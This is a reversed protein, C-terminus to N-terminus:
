ASRSQALRQGYQKQYYERYEGSKIPEWWARNECYWAVTERHRGRPRTEPRWGLARLKTTDVAYRHDHGPRLGPRPADADPDAGTLELIRARARPEHSTARASTTSRAAAGEGCSCSSRARLPGRRVALRAGAAATTSRCRSATSRTPSSCRSSRRRISTRGTTTPAARSRCTWARVHPPVRARHPRRRGEGGLVPEVAPAADTESRPAARRSAATSRTPASRCSGRQTVERLRELM